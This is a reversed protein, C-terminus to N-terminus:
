VTKMGLAWEAIDGPKEAYGIKSFEELEKRSRYGWLVALADLKGAAATKMDVESDGVYLIEPAPHGCSAIVELVASKHPKLERGPLAGFVGQFTNEPFLRRVITEATLQDKNTYVFLELGESRLRALVEPIGPYSETNNAPNKRYFDLLEEVAKDLEKESLSPLSLEMARRLGWGVRSQFASFPHAELGRKTLVQNIAAAIDKMSDVITGDMDLLLAKYKRNMNM